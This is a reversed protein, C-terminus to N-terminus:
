ILGELSVDGVERLQNLNIKAYVSASDVNRHGLYDAIVKMSQNHELCINLRQTVCHM